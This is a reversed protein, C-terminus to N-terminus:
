NTQNLSEEAYSPGGLLARERKQAHRSTFKYRTSTLSTPSSNHEIFEM